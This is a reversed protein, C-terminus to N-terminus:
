TCNPSMKALAFLFFCGVFDVMGHYMGLDLGAVRIYINREM